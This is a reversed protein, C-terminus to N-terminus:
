AQMQCYTVGLRDAMKSWSRETSVWRRATAGLRKRLDGERILRELGARLSDVQDAEHLLGTEEHAVIEAQAKVDSVILAKGMAMLEFPKLPSVTETVLCRTRPLPAIDFLSYHATMTEFPVRGAFTIELKDRLATAQTQLAALHPGNGIILLHIQRRLAEPMASTAELLLDLGEYATVSGGFGIVIKGALGYRSELEHDRPRPAFVLPDVANPLLNIQERPVGRAAVTNAIGRTIAFTADAERATQAELAAQLAFQDTHEFGPQKFSRTLEWLGRIEYVVPIGLERGALLAALGNSFNSASHIVAPRLERAQQIIWKATARIQESKMSAPFTEQGSPYRYPVGDYTFGSDDSLDPMTGTAAPNDSVGGARTIGIANWGQARLAKLLQHSRTTYGNTRIPLCSQLLYLITRPEPSYAPEPRKPPLPFGDCLLAHDDQIDDHMRHLLRILGPFKKEILPHRTEAILAELSGYVELCAGSRYRAKLEAAEEKVAPIRARVSKYRRREEKEAKRRQRERERQKKRFFLRSLLQAVSPIM